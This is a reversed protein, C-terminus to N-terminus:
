ACGVLWVKTAPELQSEAQAERTRKRLAPTCKPGHKGAEQEKELRALTAQDRAIRAKVRNISQQKMNRDKCKGKEKRGISKRCSAGFPM